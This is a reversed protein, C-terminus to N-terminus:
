NTHPLCVKSFASEDLTASQGGPVDSPAYLWNTNFNLEVRNSQAPTYQAARPSFGPLIVGSLLFIVASFIATELFFGRRKM